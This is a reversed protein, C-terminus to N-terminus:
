CIIGLKPRPQYKAKAGELVPAIQGNAMGRKMHARELLEGGMRIVSKLQPDGYVNRLHLVMGYRFSIRLNKIVMIGGTKESNVFVGWLHGPYHKNLVDAARKALAEDLGDVAHGPEGQIETRVSATPVRILGM